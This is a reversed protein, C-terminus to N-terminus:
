AFVTGPGTSTRIGPFFCHLEGLVAFNSERQGHELTVEMRSNTFLLNLYSNRLSATSPAAVIQAEQIMM